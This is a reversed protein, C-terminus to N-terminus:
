KNENAEPLFRYAIFFSIILLITVVIGGEPGFDGGNIINPSVIKIKYISDTHAGSVLFGFVAGQFYNWAIHYGIGMWLNKTKIYIYGTLIGFLSLNIYALLSIGENMSHMLAFVIASIVIPIFWSKEPEKLINICYGRSFLEESIGVFIFIILEMILADSINPKSLNNQLEVSKTCILIFAVITFSIAGILLGFCLNNSNNKISTFGIDKLRKKEFVKLFLIVCFIMCICQILILIASLFSSMSFFQEDLFNMYEVSNISFQPNLILIIEKYIRFFIYSFIDTAILFVLYLIGIKLLPKILNDISKLIKM